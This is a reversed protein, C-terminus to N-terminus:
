PRVGVDPPPAVVAPASRVVPAPNEREVYVCAGLSMAVGALAVVILIRM